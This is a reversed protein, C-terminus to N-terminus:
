FAKGLYRFTRILSYALTEYAFINLIEAFTVEKRSFCFCKGIILVKILSVSSM